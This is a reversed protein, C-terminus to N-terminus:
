FNKGHRTMQRIAWDLEAQKTAITHEHPVQTEHRIVKPGALRNYVAYVGGPPCLDDLFCVTFHVPCDIYPAFNGCDIYRTANLVRDDACSVTGDVMRKFDVIQPWGPARKALPGALDCHTCCSCVLGRVCDNFASAAIAQGGGQSHGVVFINEGDWENVHPVLSVVAIARLFMKVFYSSERDDSGRRRYDALEERMDQYFKDDKDNPISHPNVSIVMFGREVWELGASFSLKYVGAGHFLVVAPFPPSVHPKIVWGYINGAIDTQMAFKEVVVNSSHSLVPELYFSNKNILRTKEKWFDCFDKPTSLSFEIREPSVGAVARQLTQSEPDTVRLEYFGPANPLLKLRIPNEECVAVGTDVTEFGDKVFEYHFRCGSSNSRVCFYAPEGQQYIASAREVCVVFQKTDRCVDM